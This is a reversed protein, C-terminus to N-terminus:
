RQFLLMVMDSKARAFEPVVVWDLHIDVGAPRPATRRAVAVKVTPNAM